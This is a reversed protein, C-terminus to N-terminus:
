PLAYTWWPKEIMDCCMEETLERFCSLPFYNRRATIDRVGVQCKNNTRYLVLLNSRLFKSAYMM